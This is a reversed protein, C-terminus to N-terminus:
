FEIRLERELESGTSAGVRTEFTGSKFPATNPVEVPIPERPASSGVRTESQSIPTETERPASITPSSPIRLVPATVEVPETSVSPQRERNSIESGEAPLTESPISVSDHTQGGSTGSHENSRDIDSANPARHGSRNVADRQLPTEHTRHSERARRERSERDLRGENRRVDRQRQDSQYEAEYVLEAPDEGLPLNIQPRTTYPNSGQANQLAGLLDPEPDLSASSHSPPPPPSCDVEPKSSLQLLMDYVKVLSGSIKVAIVESVLQAHVGYTDAEDSLPAMAALPGLQAYWRDFSKLEEVFENLDDRDWSKLPRDPPLCYSAKLKFADIKRTVESLQIYLTNAHMLPSYDTENVNDALWQDEFLYGDIETYGEIDARAANFTISVGLTLALLRAVKVSRFARSWGARRTGDNLIRNLM